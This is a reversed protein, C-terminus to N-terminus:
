DGSGFQAHWADAPLIARIAWGGLIGAARYLETTRIQAQERAEEFSQATVNFALEALQQDRVTGPELVAFWDPGFVDHAVRELSEREEPLMPTYVSWLQPGADTLWVWEELAAVGATTVRYLAEATGGEYQMIAPKVLQSEDLVKLASRVAEEDAHTREVLGALPAAGGAALYAVLRWELQENSEIGRQRLDYVSQRSMGLLDAAETASVGASLVPDVLLAVVRTEETILARARRIRDGAVAFRERGASQLVVRGNRESM